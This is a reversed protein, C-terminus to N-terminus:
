TLGAYYKAEAQKRAEGAKAKNSGFYGLYHMKGNMELRAYWGGTPHWFVGKIGSKGGRGHTNTAQEKKTAWRCNSLEYNGDGDIRDISHEPSPKPGMDEIFNEFSQMWRECIVIGRGGYLRYKPNHPNNCRQRMNLWTGYAPHHIKFERRKDIDTTPDTM